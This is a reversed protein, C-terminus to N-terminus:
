YKNNFSDINPFRIRLNAPMSVLYVGLFIFFGALIKVPNLQDIGLLLALSTAVFPQLYIYISVVSAQVRSLAYANLLYAGFTTGLIVYAVGAWVAPTFVQWNTNMVDNFGFPWVMPLGMLFTWKVVTIPHYRRMLPKSVVLYMGFSSANVLVLLDGLPNAADLQLQKGNTILIIAGLAGFVLGALKRSTIREALLIASAFLVLIPTSTMLLSANIPSTLQLGKFFFLQNVAVGLLGCLAFRPLDRRAIRERIFLQHFLSFLITAGSVRLAIFGFPQLFGGQMVEKAIVYNGGYLLAVGFLALHARLTSPAPGKITPDDASAKADNNYNM